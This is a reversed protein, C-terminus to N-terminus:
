PCYLFMFGGFSLAMETHNEQNRRSSLVGLTRYKLWGLIETVLCEWLLGLIGTNIEWYDFIYNPIEMAPVLLWVEVIM